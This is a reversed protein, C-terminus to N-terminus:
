PSAAPAEGRRDFVFRSELEPLTGTEIAQRVESLFDLYFALNHRTALVHATMPEYRCLHHLFARSVQRCTPCSCEPDPPEDAERFEAHKIRLEGGRTFLLGHRASRTPLVCDFLDVGQRVAHLIDGPYGVGMLYRPRNRPLRPATWEVVSGRELDPEGVSVGGIAYGDLELATLREVAEERLPRFTSGQVIGFLSGPGEDRWAERCRRAWVLTRELSARATEEEVPWPPCEDLVMAIDVGLRQQREAVLEPTLRMPAGDLHNQFTVGDEDVERLRSLSYIQYGGSDTLIPGQWGVFRHIGGLGEIVEVGPRLSLHYLNALLIQAGLDSLDGPSLTKVAGRTGVPMFAPTDVVGRETILRGVRASGSEAVIELEAGMM